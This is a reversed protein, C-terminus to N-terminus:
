WLHNIFLAIACATFWLGWATSRMKVGDPHMPKPRWGGARCFQVVAMLGLTIFTAWTM